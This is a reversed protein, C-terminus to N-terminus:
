HTHELPLEAIDRRTSAAWRAITLVTLAVGFGFIWWNIVVGVLAITSGAALIVPLYSPGPLHIAEGPPPVDESKIRESAM